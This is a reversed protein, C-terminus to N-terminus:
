ASDMWALPAPDRYGRRGARIIEFVPLRPRIVSERRYLDELHVSGIRRGRVDHVTGRGDGVVVYLGAEVHRTDEVVLLISQSPPWHLPREYVLEQQFM